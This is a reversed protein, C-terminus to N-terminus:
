PPGSSALPLCQHACATQPGWRVVLAESRRFHRGPIPPFNLALYDADWGGRGAGGQGVRGCEGVYMVGEKTKEAAETVGQKTKEVAGV